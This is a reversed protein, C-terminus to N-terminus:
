PALPQSANSAVWAAPADAYHEKKWIPLRHKIQDIIYRCAAFAPDRHAAATGVWVALEGVALDGVRHQCAARDIAFQARAEALIRQGEKEALPRYAQYSLGTVTRDNHHDRVWGEFSVFGGCDSSRMQQRLDAPDIAADTLRFM